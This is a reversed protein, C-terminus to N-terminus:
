IPPLAYQAPDLGLERCLAEVVVGHDDREHLGSVTVCGVLGAQAVRIPFGGGALVYDANDMGRRPLFHDVGSKNELVARYSSKALRQVVNIKRRVWHQNDGNTGALAMYFLPREWSCVDCVIPLGDRLGHDRIRQGISFAVAEDFREFVLDREQAIVREIDDAQSM